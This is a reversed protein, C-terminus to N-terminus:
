GLLREDLLVVLHRLLYFLGVLQNLLLGWHGELLDFYLGHHM